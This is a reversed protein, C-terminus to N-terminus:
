PDSEASDVRGILPPLVVLRSSSMRNLRRQSRTQDSSIIQELLRFDGEGRASRNALAAMLADFDRFFTSHVKPTCGDSKLRITRSAIYVFSRTTWCM